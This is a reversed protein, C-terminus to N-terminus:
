PTLQKIQEVLEVNMFNPNSNAVDFFNLMGKSEYLKEEKPIRLLRSVAIVALM